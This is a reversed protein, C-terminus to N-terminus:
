AKKRKRIIKFDSSTNNTYFSQKGSCHKISFYLTNSNPLVTGWVKRAGIWDCDNIIAQVIRPKVARTRNEGAV